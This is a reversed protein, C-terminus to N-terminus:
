VSTPVDPNLNAACSTNKNDDNFFSCFMEKSFFQSVQTAPSQHTASSHSPVMSPGSCTVRPDVRPRSYRLLLFM